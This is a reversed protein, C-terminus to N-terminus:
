STMEKVPILVIVQLRFDALFEGAFWIIEQPLRDDFDSGQTTLHVEPIVETLVTAEKLFDIWDTTKYSSKSLKWYEARASNQRHSTTTGLTAEVEM